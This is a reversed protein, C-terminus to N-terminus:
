SESLSAICTSYLRENKSVSEASTMIERHRVQLVPVGPGIMIIILACFTATALCFVLPSVKDARIQRLSAIRAM